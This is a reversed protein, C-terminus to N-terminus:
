NFYIYILGAGNITMESYHGRLDYNYQSVHIYNGSVGEVWMAHGYTGGMSIAVSHARPTSGTSIGARQADGPWQNANGTGGWYPMHGFTQFVKWATYSVCERNYMGWDDFTSDQTVSCPQANDQDVSCHYDWKAPYGGHNPDGASVTGGLKRNAAAQAARLGSIASQNNNIQQNYSAQQSQNYSLLQNQQSQASNLQGQQSQQDKLLQDVQNKQDSLQNQLKTITALTDQVKNQVSTRYEEKDVFESLNKSTALMEITTIQGDVYMSKIDSGLIARQQDLKAQNAQIQAQLSAQQSLNNNILSQLGSIQAQLRSIADQYSAAEAQLGSVAAQSQSNQQTLANIQEDFNDAKVSPTGPVFASCVVLLSAVTIIPVSVLKRSKTAPKSRKQKM